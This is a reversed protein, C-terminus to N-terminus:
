MEFTIGKELNRRCFGGIGDVRERSSHPHEAVWGHVGAEKGQSEGVSPCWAKVPVLAKGGM